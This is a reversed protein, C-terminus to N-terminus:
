NTEGRKSEKGGKVSMASRGTPWDDLTLRSLSIEDLPDDEPQQTETPLILHKYIFYAVLQKEAHCANFRGPMGRDLDHPELGFGINQCLDLVEQTWDVGAVHITDDRGHSWGSMAAIEPLRGGRILRAITKRSTPLSYHTTLSVSPNFDPNPHFTFADLQPIAPEQADEGLLFMIERRDRNRALGDEKYIRHERRLENERLPRAYDVAQRLNNGEIAQLSTEARYKLLAEVNGLRGWLAAKMLPTRGDMDVANPDAGNSLLLEVMDPFDDIAALHLATVGDTKLGDFESNEEDSEGESEGLLTVETSQVGHLFLDAHPSTELFRRVRPVLGMVMDSLVDDVEETWIRKLSIQQRFVARLRDAVAKSIGQDPLRAEGAVFRFNKNTSRTASRKQARDLPFSSIMNWLATNTLTFYVVILLVGNSRTTETSAM